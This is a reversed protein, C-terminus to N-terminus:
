FLKGSDRWIDSPRLGIDRLLRPDLEALHRRADARDRWALVATVVRGLGRACAGSARRWIGAPASRHSENAAAPVAALEQQDLLHGFFLIARRPDRFTGHAAGHPAADPQFAQQASMM